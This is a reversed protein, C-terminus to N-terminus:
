EAASNPTRTVTALQDSVTEDSNRFGLLWEEVIDRAHFPQKKLPTLLYYGSETSVPETSFPRVLQGSKLHSDVLHKWGLCIGLGDVAAQVALPYTNVTVTQSLELKRGLKAQLWTHWTHWEPHQSAVEIISHHSVTELSHFDPNSKMYSPSCVPFVTEGFLMESQYGPWDGEGRLIALDVHDGLCEEDVDSALLSITVQANSRNFMQLRPMLWLSAVSNTAALTVTDQTQGAFVQESADILQELAPRIDKLLQAGQATLTISRHRRVFLPCKYHLEMLRIKRSVATESLNLDRSAAVISEQSAASEFALLYDLPPLLNRRKLM